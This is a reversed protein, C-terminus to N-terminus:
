KLTCSKLNAINAKIKQESIGVIVSLQSITINRNGSIHSIIERQRKSLKEPASDENETVKIENDFLKDSLAYARLKLGHQFNEFFPESFGYEKFCDKIRKLLDDVTIQELL